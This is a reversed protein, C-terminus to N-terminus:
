IMTWEGLYSRIEKGQMLYGGYFCHSTIPIREWVAQGRRNATRVVWVFGSITARFFSGHKSGYRMQLRERTPDFAGNAIGPVEHRAHAADCGLPVTDPRRGQQTAPSAFGLLQLFQRTGSPHFCSSSQISLELSAGVGLMHPDMGTTEHSCSALSLTVDLKCVVM